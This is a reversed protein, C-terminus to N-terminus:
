NTCSGCTEQCFENLTINEGDLTKRKKKCLKRKKKDKLSKVKRAFWECDKKVVKANKKKWIFKETNDKCSEEIEVDPSIPDDVNASCENNM